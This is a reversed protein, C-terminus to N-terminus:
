AKQRPSYLSQFGARDQAPVCANEGYSLFLSARRGKSLQLAREFYRRMHEQKEAPKADIRSSEISILLEPV